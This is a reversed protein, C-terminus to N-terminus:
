KGLLKLTLLTPLMNILVSIIVCVLIVGVIIMVIMVIYWKKKQIAKQSELASEMSKNAQATYDEIQDVNYEIRNIIAGQSVVLDQMQLFMQNLEMISREINQMDQLRNKMQGLTKKSDEKVSMAFVQVKMAEPDRTLEALEAKTARPKVILYQRQLQARYKEQYIEQVKQYHKMGDMFAKSLQRHNNERMRLNGSGKPCTQALEKTVTDMEQLSRRTKNTIQTVKAMLAEIKSSCEASVDSDATSLAEKHLKEIEETFVKIRKNSEKIENMQAFFRPMEMKEDEATIIPLIETAPIGGERSLAMAEGQEMAASKSFPQYLANGGNPQKVKSTQTQAKKDLQAAASARQFDDLRNM